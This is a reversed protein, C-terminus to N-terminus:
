GVRLPGRGLSTLSRSGSETLVLLDEIRCGFKGPLYIGPEVTVVMGAQLAATGSKGVTPAEHIELGVGHGLGHGFYDGYGADTILDRAIADVERGNLGPRLANIAAVRASDVVAHIRAAEPDLDGTAVTRTCDSCYGDLVVGWDIVVLTDPMIKVDRPEAHPLAGHAGGAVIPPFSMGTAGLRRAEVELDFAVERETLGVIGHGLVVEFAEDALAAAAAIAAIEDAHKVSRFSSLGDAVPILQISEGLEESLLGHDAVTMQAPDFGVRSFGLKLLTAAVAKIVPGDAIQVVFGEGVQAPAQEAYRFDTIFESGSRAVVAAGSSGTFGTLWRLDAAGFVVLVELELEALLAQLQGLRGESAM